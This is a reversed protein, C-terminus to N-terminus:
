LTGYLNQVQLRESSCLTRQSSGRPPAVALMVCGSATFHTLGFGHLLEHLAVTEFDIKGAEVSQGAASPCFFDGASQTTSSVYFLNAYDFKVDTDSVLYGPGYVLATSKPSPVPPAIALTDNSDKPDDIGSAYTVVLDSDNTSELNNSSTTTASHNLRFRSNVANITAVARALAPRCKDPFYTYIKVPTSTRDVYKWNYTDFREATQAHTVTPFAAITLLAASVIEKM